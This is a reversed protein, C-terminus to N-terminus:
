PHRPHRFVWDVLRGIRWAFGYPLPRHSSGDGATSRVVIAWNWWSCSWDDEIHCLIRYDGVRYRWFEPATLQKGISRPDPARHVRENMFRVLTAAVPRDLKALQKEARRSWEVAYTM